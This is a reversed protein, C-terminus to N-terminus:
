PQVQTHGIQLSAVGAVVVRYSGALAAGALHRDIEPGVALAATLLLRRLAQM